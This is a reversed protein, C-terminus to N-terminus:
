RVAGAAIAKYAFWSPKPRGARDVLGSYQCFSCQSEWTPVDQWSFWDVGSIRWRRRKAVLLHISRRLFGAQGELGLDFSTPVEADSAVGVEGILLPMRPAGAQAMARRTQRVAYEVGLTSASYPHLAVEDVDRKAGPIRLLSRIYSWPKVGAGVPAVGGAIVTSSPDVARLARRSVDLLRAYARPSPRRHWFLVFNPENWIQWRRIPVPDRGAWFAGGSGYRVVFATLFSAWAERGRPYDLPSHVPDPGLWPPTGYVFPLVEIGHEAAGGVVDDLAAWDYTGPTREVVPWYVGLRLTGVVGEMRDFDTADIRGQPVVGLFGPPPAAAQARASGLGLGAIATVVAM